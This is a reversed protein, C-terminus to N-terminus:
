NLQLFVILFSIILGLLIAVINSYFIHLMIGCLIISLLYFKIYMIIYSRNLYTTRKKWMLFFITVFLLFFIIKLYGISFFRYYSKRFRAMKIFRKMLYVKQKLIFSRFIISYEFYIKWFSNPLNRYIIIVYFQIIYCYLNILILKVYKYLLYNLLNLINLWNLISQKNVLNCIINSDIHDIYLIEVLNDWILIFFNFM